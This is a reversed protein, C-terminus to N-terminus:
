KKKNEVNLLKTLIIPVIIALSTVFLAILIFEFLGDRGELFPALFANIVDRWTLAALFGFAAVSLTLIQKRLELFFANGKELSTKKAQEKIKKVEKLIEKNKKELFNIKNLEVLNKKELNKIKNSDIKSKNKLYDLKKDIKKDVLKVV